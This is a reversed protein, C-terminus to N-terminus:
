ALAGKVLSKGRRRQVKKQGEYIKENDLYVPMTINIDESGGGIGQM